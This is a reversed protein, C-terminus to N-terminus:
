NKLNKESSKIESQNSKKVEEILKYGVLKETTEIEKVREDTLAIPEDKISYSEGTHIDIFGNIIKYLKTM